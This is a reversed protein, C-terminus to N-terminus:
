YSPWGTSMRITLVSSLGQHAAQMIGVSLTVVNQTLLIRHASEADALVTDDDIGLRGEQKKLRSCMMAWRRLAIVVPLRFNEDSYFQAL